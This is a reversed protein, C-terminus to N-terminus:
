AIEMRANKPNFVPETLLLKSERATVGIKEFGYNWVHGLDEFNKVLGENVPYSLDLVARAKTAEEGVM